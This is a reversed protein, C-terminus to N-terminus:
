RGSETSGRVCVGAVSGDVDVQQGDVDGVEVDGVEEDSVDEVDLVEENLEIYEDVSESPLIELEPSFEQRSSRTISSPRSNGNESPSKSNYM